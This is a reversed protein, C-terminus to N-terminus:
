SSAFTIQKTGVHTLGRTTLALGVTARDNSIVGALQRHVGDPQLNTGNVRVQVIGTRAQPVFLKDGVALAALPLAGLWSQTGPAAHAIARLGGQANMVYCANRLIGGPRRHTVFLWALHDGVVCHADVVPGLQPLLYFNRFGNRDADFVLVRTLVGAQVLAVGFREGAWVSTLNQAVPGVTTVSSGNDRVLSNGSVWYVNRSNAAVAPKGNVRQVPFPRAKSPDGNVIACENGSVFVTRHGAALVSVHPSHAAARLIVKGTEDRYAGRSHCVYQLQGGTNTIALYLTNSAPPTQPAETTTAAAPQGSPASKPPPATATSSPTYAAQPANVGPAKCRPCESRGHERKCRPCTMWVFSTLLRFPFASVRVDNVFTDRMFLGLGVPLSAPHHVKEQDLRVTPDFVSLRAAIRQDGRLRLVVPHGKKQKPRHVGDRYPHTRTLLQYVMVTYAYVDSAISYNSGSKMMALSADLLLPDTFESTVTLCRWSGWQASDVDILYVEGTRVNVLVNKENFDGIVVGAKHVKNMLDGLKLLIQIIQKLSLRKRKIFDPDMLKGITQINKEDGAANMKEDIADTILEMVYGIINGARDLVLATPTIANRPLGRPISRLKQQRMAAIAIQEKTEMFFLKVAYNGSGHKAIFDPPPSWRLVIAEGGEGIVRRADETDFSHQRGEIHADIIM